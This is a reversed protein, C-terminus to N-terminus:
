AVLQFPYLPVERPKPNIGGDPLPDYKHTIAHKLVEYFEYPIEVDVGRTILMAKGNVSVQVPESGGAEETENIHITVMRRKPKQEETVPVPNDGKQTPEQTESMDLVLIYDKDWCTSIKAVVTEKKTNPPLNLGLNNCAFGLLQMHTAEAIKVQRNM